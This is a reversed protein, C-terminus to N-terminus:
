RTALAQERDISLPGGLMPWAAAHNSLAALDQVELELNHKPVYLQFPARLEYNIECRTLSPDSPSPGVHVQDWQTIKAEHTVLLQRLGPQGRLFSFCDTGRHFRYGGRSTFFETALEVQQDVSLPSEFWYIQRTARFGILDRRQVTVEVSLQPTIESTQFPNTMPVGEISSVFGLILM